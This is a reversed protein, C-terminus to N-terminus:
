IMCLFDSDMLFPIHHAFELKIDRIRGNLMPGCKVFRGLTVLQWATNCSLVFTFIIVAMKNQTFHFFYLFVSFM